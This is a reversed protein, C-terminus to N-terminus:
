KGGWEALKDLNVGFTRAADSGFAEFVKDRYQVKKGGQIERWKGLGWCTEKCLGRLEPSYDVNAKSMLDHVSSESYNVYRGKKEMWKQGFAGGNDIAWVKGANDELVNGAHRDSNGVLADLVKMQAFEKADLTQDWMDRDPMEKWTQADSVWRQLSGSEGEFEYPVTEPVIGWGLEESLEYAMIESSASGYEMKEDNPKFIAKSGDEFNVVISENAGKQDKSLRGVSSIPSTGLRRVKSPASGGRKGKVGKHGRHGSGPGGKEVMSKGTYFKVDLGM